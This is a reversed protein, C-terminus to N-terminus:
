CIGVLQKIEAVSEVIIYEALLKETDETQKYHLVWSSNNVLVKAAVLYSLCHGM